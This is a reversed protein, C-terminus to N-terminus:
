KEMHEMRRQTAQMLLRTVALSLATFNVPKTILDAGGADILSEKNYRATYATVFIIPLNPTTVGEAYAPVRGAYKGKLIRTVDIGNLDSGSLQIDMLVLDFRGKALAAFCETANRARTLLYRDRLYFETVEWNTDEDEVYLVSTAPAAQAQPEAAKPDFKKLTM